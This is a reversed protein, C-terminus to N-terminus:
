YRRAVAITIATGHPQPVINAAGQHAEAVLRAAEMLVIASAGGPRETWAPDLSREVWREPATVTDQSVTFVVTQKDTSDASLTIRGGRVGELLSATAIVAGALASVLLQPDGTVTLHSPCDVRAVLDFLHLRRDPDFSQAVRELVSAVATETRLLPLERRVIRIAQFLCSARWAEVSVLDTIITRSLGSVSGSLLGACSGLTELTKALDSGGLRAVDPGVVTHPALPPQSVSAAEGLQRAEDDDVDHVLCPIARLGVAIAAALRRKGAILRYRGNRQQVLLPQVIGHRKVSELLPDDVAADSLDPADISRPELMQERRVSSRSSLLDVYHADARMKYTSPLGERAPPQRESGAFPPVPPQIKDALRSGRLSEVNPDIDSV